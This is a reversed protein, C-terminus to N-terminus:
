LSSVISPNALFGHCNQLYNPIFARKGLLIKPAIHVQVKFSQLSVAWFQLIDTQVVRSTSYAIFEEEISQNSQAFKVNDGMGLRTGYQVALVQWKPKPPAVNARKSPGPAMQADATISTTTSYKKM